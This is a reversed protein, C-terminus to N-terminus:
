LVGGKILQDYSSIDVEQLKQEPIHHEEGRFLKKVEVSNPLKNKHICNELYRNVEEESNDAAEKLIAVYERCAKRPDLHEDLVKWAQRFALTPFLHERYIYARFAQPKKSLSGIVHRYNIHNPNRNKSRKRQLTIVHDGGVFCELRDDYLHVKLTHGILRSPVSYGIGKVRITSSTSVGLRCEQYDCAKTDPLLNLYQREENVIKQIRQNQKRIVEQVFQKYEEVSNFDRSGRLM